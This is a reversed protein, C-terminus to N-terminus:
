PRILWNGDPLRERESYESIFGEQLLSENEKEILIVEPKKEPNSQYYQMLRNMTIGEVKGQWGSNISGMWGSFAAVENENVLYLWTQESLYM